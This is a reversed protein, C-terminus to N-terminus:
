GPEDFNVSYVDYLSLDLANNARKNKTNLDTIDIRETGVENKEAIQYLGNYEGNLYLDAYHLEPSYKMGAERAMNYVLTNAFMTNDLCNAMLIWSYSVGMGFLDSPNHLMIGFSKKDELWTTNGHGKIYNLDGMYEISGDSDEIYIKGYERYDKDSYINEMGGSETRVYVAATDRSKIFLMRGGEILIGSRSYLASDYVQGEEVNSLSGGSHVATDEAGESSLVLTDAGKIYLRTESFVASSPLFVYHEDPHDSPTYVRVSKLGGKGNIDISVSDYASDYGDYPARNEKYWKLYIVFPLFASIFVTILLAKRM